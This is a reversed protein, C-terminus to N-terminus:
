KQTRIKIFEAIQSQSYGARGMIRLVRGVKQMVSTAIAKAQSLAMTEAQHTLKPDSGVSLIAGLTFALAIAKALRLPKMPKSAISEVTMVSAASANETLFPLEQPPTQSFAIV